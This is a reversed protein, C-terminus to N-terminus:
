STFWRHLYGAWFPLFVEHNETHILCLVQLFLYLKELIVSKLREQIKKKRLLTRPINDVQGIDLSPLAKTVSPEMWGRPVRGARGQM